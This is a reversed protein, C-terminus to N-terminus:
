LVVEIKDNNLGFLVGGSKKIQKLINIINSDILEGPVIIPIGPPYAGVICACTKYVADDLNVYISDSLMAERPLMKIKPLQVNKYNITHSSTIQPKHNALDILIKELKELPNDDNLLDAITIIFVVRKNDAMEACIKNKYLLDYLEYGSLYKHQIVLRTIDYDFVNNRDIYENIIYGIKQLQNILRTVREVLKDYLYRGNKQMFMRAYDLSAMLPYSPSSTELLSLLKKLKTTYKKKCHLYATQTLSPLTKHASNVWIDANVQGASVPMKDSFVFHSGHAEDILLAMNNDITIDRIQKIDSCLGYYSPNVILVGKADSNEMIVKQLDDIDIHTSLQSIYDYKPTIYIPQVDFFALAAWVSKHSNRSIILKDKPKCLCGIMAHIGVTAGNVLFFSNDALFANASLEQAKKIFDTPNHLDDTDKLETVDFNFINHIFTKSIGYGGKHGPMHFSTYEKNKRALLANIIPKNM